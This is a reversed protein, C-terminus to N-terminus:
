KDENNVLMGSVANSIENNHSIQLKNNTGGSYVRRAKETGGVVTPPLIKVSSGDELKKGSNSANSIGKLMKPYEFQRKSVLATYIKIFRNQLYKLDQESMGCLKVWGGEDEVIRHIGADDFCVDDYPSVNSIAKSLKSWAQAGREEARGEINAIIHTPTIPFHGSQTDNVHLEAAYEVQEISFRSLLEFNKALGFTSAKKDYIEERYYQWLEYFKERDSNNM